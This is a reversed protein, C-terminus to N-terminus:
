DGEPGALFELLGATFATPNEEAIWHAAGPIRLGAVDEAVEHM